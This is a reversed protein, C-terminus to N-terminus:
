HVAQWSVGVKGNEALPVKMKLFEGAEKISAEAMDKVEEAIEKECEFSYEDM